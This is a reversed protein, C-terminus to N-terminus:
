GSPRVMSGRRSTVKASPEPYRVIECRMVAKDLPQLARDEGLQPAHGKAPRVVPADRLQLAIQLGVQAEVIPVARMSAVPGLAARRGRDEQGLLGASYVEPRRNSSLLTLVEDV